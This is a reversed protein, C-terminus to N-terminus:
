GGDAGDGDDGDGGEDADDGAAEDGALRLEAGDVVTALDTVVVRADPELGATIYAYSEDSLEVEVARVRLVGEAMTWVTDGSRLRERPIRIVDELVRGRIQAEVVADLMLPPADPDELALPDAVTVLLRALRTERNLAGVLRHVRGERWTGEHWASRNRVRVRAGAEPASRPVDIWRLKSVPVTAEIWYTGTGVLRGLAQGPDVQSGLDVLRELVLADFPARLSSRALELTAQEVAARAADVRARATELQPERLALDRRESPLEQDYRAYDQEAVHRRGREIALEAEAQRLDARSRELAIRYDAPDLGLLLEGRAVLGGPTFGEAREVVEGGVRAAFTIARASRVTGLAVITPRFDGAEVSEVEVLMASSRTAGGREAAPETSFIWWTIGAALLLIGLCISLTPKWSM